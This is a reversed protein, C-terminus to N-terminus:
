RAFFHWALWWWFGYVAIRGVPMKGARYHMVFGSIASLSPIKSGERRAGFEIGIAILAATAFAAFTIVRTVSM